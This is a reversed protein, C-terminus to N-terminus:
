RVVQAEALLLAAAALLALPGITLLRRALAKM